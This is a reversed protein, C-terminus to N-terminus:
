WTKGATIISLVLATGGLLLALLLGGVVWWM